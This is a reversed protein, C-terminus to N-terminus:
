QLDAGTAVKVVPPSFVLGLGASRSGAFADAVFDHQHADQSDMSLAFLFVAPGLHPLFQHCAANTHAVLNANSAMVKAAGMDEVRVFGSKGLVYAHEDSIV